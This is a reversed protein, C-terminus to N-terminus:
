ALGVPAGVAVIRWPQADDGNLAFTWRETFSTPRRRSGALVAATDRDEIYRRGSLDVEVTMTPLSSHADLHTIRIRTV